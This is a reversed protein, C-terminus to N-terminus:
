VFPASVSTEPMKKRLPETVRKLSLAQMEQASASTALRMNESVRM